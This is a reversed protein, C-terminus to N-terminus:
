RIFLLKCVGAAHVADLEHHDTSVFECDLRRALAIDFSDALSMKHANKVFAADRLFDRDFDERTIIKCRDAIRWVREAQERGYERQIGYFIELSNVAHIYTERRNAELLRRLEFAGKERKCMAIFGGADLVIM